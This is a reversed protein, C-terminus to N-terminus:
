STKPDTDEDNKETRKAHKDREAPDEFDRQYIAPGLQHVGWGYEKIVAERIKTLGAKFKDAVDGELVTCGGVDKCTFGIVPEGPTEEHIVTVMLIM